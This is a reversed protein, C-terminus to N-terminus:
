EIIEDVLGYKLCTEADWWLDHKLINDLQKSPIKAHTMYLKKIKEMLMDSNQMDDQMEQYKGWMHGSLQHILMFSNKHMCRHAGVMSMLTAASAACGDIITEVPAKSTLIYDVAALGAFVSGGYSNIHIKIPDISNSGYTLARSRLNINLNSIMKNLALIKPRNVSSYFFIKNGVSEVKNFDESSNNEVPSHVKKEATSMEELELGWTYKKLNNEM